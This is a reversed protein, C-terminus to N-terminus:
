LVEWDNLLTNLDYPDIYTATCYEIPLIFTVILYQNKYEIGKSNKLIFEKASEPLSTMNPIIYESIKTEIQKLIIQNGKILVKGNELANLKEENSM